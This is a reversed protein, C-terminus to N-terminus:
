SPFISNAYSSAPKWISVRPFFFVLGFLVATVFFCGGVWKDM